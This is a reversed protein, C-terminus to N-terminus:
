MANFKIVSEPTILLSFSDIYFVENDSHVCTFVDNVQIFKTTIKPALTLTKSSQTM